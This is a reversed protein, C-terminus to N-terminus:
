RLAYLWSGEYDRQVTEESQVVVGGYVYDSDSMEVEALVESVSERLQPQTALKDRQTDTETGLWVSVDYPRVFGVVYEVHVVGADAFQARLRETAAATWKNLRPPTAM